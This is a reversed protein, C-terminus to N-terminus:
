LERWGAQAQGVDRHNECERQLFSFTLESAAVASTLM